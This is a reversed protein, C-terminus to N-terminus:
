VYQKVINSLPKQVIRGLQFKHKNSVKQLQDEFHYAISGIFHVPYTKIEPLKRLHELYFQTLADIVINEIEPELIHTKCFPVFSALYRNPQPERYVKQLLIESDIPYAKYFADIIHKSFNQYFIGRLLSKAIYTGSGEDGLIYSLSSYKRHIAKGDFIRFTSGTGLICVICPKNDSSAKVAGEIDTYIQITAKRFTHKFVEFLWDCKEQNSCGAGFFELQRIKSAYVSLESNEITARITGEDVFYPNLGITETRLIELGDKLIVWETKSSGSDALLIM